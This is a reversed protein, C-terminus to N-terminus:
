GHSNCLMEKIAQCCAKRSSEEEIRLYYDAAEALSFSGWIIKTDAGRDLLARVLDIKRMQIVRFLYPMPDSVRNRNLVANPDFKQHNIILLAIKRYRIESESDQEAGLRYFVLDLASKHDCLRRKNPDIKPHRLILEVRELYGKEATGMLANVRERHTYTSERKDAPVINPDAGLNQFIELIELAAEPNDNEAIAAEIYPPYHSNDETQPYSKVLLRVSDVNGIRIAFNVPLCCDEDYRRPNAGYILLIEVKRTGESGFLSAAEHLFTRHTNPTGFYKGLIEDGGVPVGAMVAAMHERTPHRPDFDDPLVERRMIGSPNLTILKVQSIKFIDAIEDASGWKVAEIMSNHLLKHRGYNSLDKKQLCELIQAGKATLLKM